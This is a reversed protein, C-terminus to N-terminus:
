KDEMLEPYLDPRRKMNVFALFTLLVMRKYVEGEGVGFYKDEPNFEEAWQYLRKLSIQKARM